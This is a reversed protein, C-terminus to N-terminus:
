AQKKLLKSVLVQIMIFACVTTITWTIPYSIFIIELTPYSPFVTWLWVVRLLCAGVLSIATSVIAKGMGRLVGSCVDMLGCLFYPMVIINFRTLAVQLALAEMSGEVGGQVGYLALLPRKLLYALGSMFVGVSFVALLCSYLIKRVRNAKKAGINQSTVTIAGQYVANMSTYVFGEINGAAASGNVVPAYESGSPVLSNNVTVISSQILMNSLSFLAGQIGAPVGNVVIDRFAKKEIKLRKFSFTTYDQDRHLKILLVVCSAANALATAIAVGEVSLEAVLVFFLNMGVNLVGAITLVVLPTKSDGKARFIAILYNTLALFPVGLFYIYTYRVALDLLNGSNGMLRLVARSVSLGVVVGILGFILAMLLATHVANQAREKDKAGVERAVVVNAGVSFGIFINLILSIFSGTTGIAGVANQEHSLSVVMMDAANYFMQLLNTAVIPLIFRLLKFFVKGETFDIKKKQVNEM